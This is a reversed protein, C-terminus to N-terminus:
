KREDGALEPVDKATPNANVWLQDNRNDDDIAGSDRMPMMVGRLTFDNDIVPIEFVVGRSPNGTIMFRIQKNYGFARALEVVRSLVDAGVTFAYAAEKPFVDDISTSKLGGNGYNGSLSHSIEVIHKRINTKRRIANKNTLAYRERIITSECGSPSKNVRAVDSLIRMEDQASMVRKLENLASASIATGRIDNADRCTAISMDPTKLEVIVHGDTGVIRVHGANKDVYINLGNMHPRTTDKSTFARLAVIMKKTIKM